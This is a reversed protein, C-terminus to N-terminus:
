QCNEDIILFKLKFEEKVIVITDSNALKSVKYPLGLDGLRYQHPIADFDIIPGNSVWDHFNNENKVLIASTSIYHDKKYFVGGRLSGFVEDGTLLIQPIDTEKCTGVNSEAAKSSLYIAAAFGLIVMSIGVIAYAKSVKITRDSM